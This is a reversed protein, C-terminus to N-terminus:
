DLNIKKKKLFKIQKPNNAAFFTLSIYYYDFHQKGKNNKTNKTSFCLTLNWRTPTYIPFATAPNKIELTDIQFDFRNPDCSM